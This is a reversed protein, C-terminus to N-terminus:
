LAGRIKWWVARVARLNSANPPLDHTMIGWIYESSVRRRSQIRRREAIKRPMYALAMLLGKLAWWGNGRQVGRGILLIYALSFRPVVRWLLRGPVDKILLMPYNKITQLTFFGRIKSGTKSIHHYVIAKPVFAVKWGALQARLSLDVDEYYAFFDEDLLGIEKLMSVRYMSSGGSAGLIETDHDYKDIDTEGRGRPYPMGWITYQDGTSDIHKGDISLLKAAVIGTKPHKDLYGALHRLWNKDAVADNNFPVAYDAGLEIARRFGPNVGGAYGKNTAHKILEIGPYKHEIISVSDDISGNDVVVVQARFTQALVSDLCARLDTAGNWNPIIVVIKLM